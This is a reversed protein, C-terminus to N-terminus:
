AVRAGDCWVGTVRLADDLLVADAAFGPLLRGLDDGRGIARAPTETLAAVVAPLEIGATEVCWRLAADQTLTSGAIAGGDSLRAVGAVVDVGLSGLDYHGDSAGAAAM